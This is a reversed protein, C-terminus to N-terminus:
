IVGKFSQISGLKYEILPRQYLCLGGCNTPTQPTQGNLDNILMSYIFTHVKGGFM